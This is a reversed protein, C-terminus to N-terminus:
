LFEYQNGGFAFSRGPDAQRENQVDLVKPQMASPLGEMQPNLKTRETVTGAESVPRANRVIEGLLQSNRVERARGQEQEAMKLQREEMQRRALTDKIRQAVTLGQLFNEAPNWLPQM